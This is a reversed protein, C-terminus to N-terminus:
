GILPAPTLRVFLSMTQFQNTSKTICFLIILVIPCFRSGKVFDQPQCSAPSSLNGPLTPTPAPTPPPYPHSQCTHALTWPVAWKPRPLLRLAGNRLCGRSPTPPQPLPVGPDRSYTHGTCFPITPFHTKRPCPRILVFRCNWM